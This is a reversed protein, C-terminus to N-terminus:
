SYALAKSIADHTKKQWTHYAAMQKNILHSGDVNHITEQVGCILADPTLEKGAETTGASLRQLYNPDLRSFAM